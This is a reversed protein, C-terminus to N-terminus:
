GRGEAVGEVNGRVVAVAAGRVALLVNGVVGLQRFDRQRAAVVRRPGKREVLRAGALRPALIQQVDRVVLIRIPMQRVVIGVAVAIVNHQRLRQRVRRM